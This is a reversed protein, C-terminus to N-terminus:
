AKSGLICYGKCNDALTVRCAFEVDKSLSLCVTPIVKIGSTLQFPTTTDEEVIYHFELNVGKAIVEPPLQCAALYFPTLSGLIDVPGIDLYQVGESVLLIGVRLPAQTTM